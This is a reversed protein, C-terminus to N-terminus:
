SFFIGKIIYLRYCPQQHGITVLFWSILLWILELKRSYALRLVFLKLDTNPFIIFCLLVFFFYKIPCVSYAKRQHDGDMILLLFAHYSILIRNVKGLRTVFIFRCQLCFITQKVVKDDSTVVVSPAMLSSFTTLNIINQKWHLWILIESKCWSQLLYTSLLSISLYVIYNMILM